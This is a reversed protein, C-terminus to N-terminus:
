HLALGMLQILARFSSNLPLSDWWLMCLNTIPHGSYLALLWCGDLLHLGLLCDLGRLSFSFAFISGRFALALHFLLSDYDSWYTVDTGSSCTSNVYSASNSFSLGWCRCDFQYWPLCDLHVSSASNSLRCGTTLCTVDVDLLVIRTRLAPLIPCSVLQLSPFSM